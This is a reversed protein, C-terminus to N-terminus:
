KENMDNTNARKKFVRFLDFRKRPEDPTEEFATNRVDAASATGTEGDRGVTDSGM